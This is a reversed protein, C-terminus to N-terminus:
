PNPSGCPATRAATWYAPHWSKRQPAPPPLRGIRYALFLSCPDDREHNTPWGSGPLSHVTAATIKIVDEDFAEPSGQLLLGDIQM